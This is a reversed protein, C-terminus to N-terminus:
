AEKEKEITYIYGKWSMSVRNVLGMNMLEIVGEGFFPIVREDIEQNQIQNM